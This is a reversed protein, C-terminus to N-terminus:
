DGLVEIQGARLLEIRPGGRREVYGRVRVRRRELSKPVLGSAELSPLVRRSITVAFDQTWRRGFNLYHTAGAQRVSVVKGEVITFRGIRSLIQDPNEANKTAASGAWLGRRAIRADTESRALALRCGPEAIHGDALAAGQSLLEAQVGIGTGDIRVFAAQRGYRDPADDDGHLTVTRGNLLAALAAAGDEVLEIGALKIERGDDLRFSRGDIISAVRGGGQPAFSCDARAAGASVAILLMVAVRAIARRMTPRLCTVTMTARMM